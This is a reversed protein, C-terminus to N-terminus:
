QSFTQLQRKNSSMESLQTPAESNASRRFLGKFENRFLENTTYLTIFGTAHFSAHITLGTTFMMYGNTSTTLWTAPFILMLLSIPLNTFIFLLTIVAVSRTISKRKNRDENSRAM